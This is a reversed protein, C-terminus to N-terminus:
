CWFDRPFYILSKDFDRDLLVGGKSFPPPPFWCYGVYDRNLEETLCKWTFDYLKEATNDDLYM